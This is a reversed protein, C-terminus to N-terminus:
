PLARNMHFAIPFLLVAKGTTLALQHAWPLYKHWDKENLGHFLLLLERARGREPCHFLPYHFKRNESVHSDQLDLFGGPLDAKETQPGTEGKLAGHSSCVYRAQVSGLFALGRSALISGGLDQEGSTVWGDDARWFQGV